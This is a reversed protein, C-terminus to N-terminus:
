FATQPRKKLYEAVGPNSKVTDLIKKLNPSDKLTDPLMTEMIEMISFLQLDALSIKSGVFVGKDKNKAAFKELNPLHAPLVKEKVEKLGAAKEADSKTPNVRTFLNERIDTIEDTVSEILAGEFADKGMMDHARALYRAMAMSQGLEKGDIELIPLQGWTTKPKLTGWEAFEIRKDEFKVGAAAFCLRVIEGRGKVNFYTYKYSPM